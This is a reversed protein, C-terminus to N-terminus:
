RDESQQSQPPGPQDPAAEGLAEARVRESVVKKLRKHEEDSIIGKDHLDKLQSLTYAPEEHEDPFQVRRKVYVVIM